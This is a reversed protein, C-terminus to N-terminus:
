EKIIMTRYIKASSSNEFVCIYIGSTNSGSNWRVRHVGEQMLGNELTSIQKGLGNYIKLSIDSPESLFFIIDTYEGMPNPYNSLFNDPHSINGSVDTHDNSIQVNITALESWLSDKKVRASINLDNGSPPLPLPKNDCVKVPNSPSISFHGPDSGDLTYIIEGGSSSTMLLQFDPPINSNNSTNFDPPAISPYWGADIFQRFVTETRTPFYNYIFSHYKNNWIDNDWFWRAQDTILATDIESLWSEYKKLGPEPTLAGNEFFHKNVHSVFLDKFEENKILDSFIGSPRNENGGSKVFSVTNGATLGKEADWVLFHFGESDTKRRAAVWNHHDWDTMGAYMNMMLYDILNEANLLNENSPNPTGDPNNGLLKQYIEPTAINDGANGGMNDRMCNEYM